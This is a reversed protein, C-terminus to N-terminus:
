SGLRLLEAICETKIREIERLEAELEPHNASDFAHDISWGLAQGSESWERYLGRREDESRGLRLTTASRISYREAQWDDLLAAEFLEVAAKAHPEVQARHHELIAKARAADGDTLPANSLFYGVNQGIHSVSRERLDLQLNGYRERVEPSERFEHLWDEFKDVHSQQLEFHPRLELKAEAWSGASPDLSARPMMKTSMEALYEDVGWVAIPEAEAYARKEARRMEAILADTDVEPELVAAREGVDVVSALDIDPRIEEVAAPASPSSASREVVTERALLWLLLAGTALVCVLWLVTRRM